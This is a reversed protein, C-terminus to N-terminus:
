SPRAWQGRPGAPQPVEFSLYHYRLIDFKSWIKQLPYIKALPHGPISKPAECSDQAWGLVYISWKFGFM